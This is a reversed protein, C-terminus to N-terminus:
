NHITKQSNLILHMYDELGNLKMIFNQFQKLNSFTMMDGIMNIFYVMETLSHPKM